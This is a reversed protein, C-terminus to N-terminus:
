TELAANLSAQGAALDAPRTGEVTRSYGATAVIVQAQANALSNQAQLVSAQSQSLALELDTTDLKAIVDGKKVSDGVQLLVQAATGPQQFSLKVESEAQINGTASVTATLEGKDLVASRQTATDTAAGPRNCAALLVSSVVVLAAGRWYQTALRTNQKSKM